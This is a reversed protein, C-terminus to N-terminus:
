QRAYIETKGGEDNPVFVSGQAGTITLQTESVTATVEQESVKTTVNYSGYPFCDKLKFGNGKKADGLYFIITSPKVVEYKGTVITGPCFSYAIGVASPTYTFESSKFTLVGKNAAGSTGQIETINWSGKLCDKSLEKCSDALSPSSDDSCGTFALASVLAASALLIKKM